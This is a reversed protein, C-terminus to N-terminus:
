SGFDILSEIRVENPTNDESSFAALRATGMCQALTPIILSLAMISAGLSFLCFGTLKVGHMPDRLLYTLREPPIYYNGDEDQDIAIRMLSEELNASFYFIESIGM